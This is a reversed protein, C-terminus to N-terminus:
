YPNPTAWLPVDKGKLLRKKKKKGKLLRALAGTSAQAEEDM